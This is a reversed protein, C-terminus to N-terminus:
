LRRANMAVAIRERWDNIPCFERGSRALSETKRYIEEDSATLDLPEMVPQACYWPTDVFFELFNREPDHVYVSWATGHNAHLPEAEPYESKLHADFARLSPLDPLAFSIQVICPGFVENATNAPLSAPRGTGLVVQHHDAPDRSLFVLDCGLAFGRDTVTFGLVETYFREMRPLDSTALGMHSFRYHPVKGPQASM